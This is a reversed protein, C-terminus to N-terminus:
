EFMRAHLLQELERGRRIALRQFHTIMRAAQIAVVSIFMGTAPILVRVLGIFVKDIDRAAASYSAGLGTALLTNITCFAGYGIWVMNALSMYSTLLHGYEMRADLVSQEEKSSAITM